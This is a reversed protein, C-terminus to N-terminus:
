AAAMAGRTSWLGTLLAAWSRVHWPRSRVARWLYRLARRDGRDLLCKGIFYLGPGDGARSSRPMELHPRIRRAEELVPAEDLGLARRRTAEVILEATRIQAPRARGTVSTTTFRWVYLVEPVLALSGVETLRLWLDIDQAYYFDSRYGGCRFYDARRFMASGHGGLGRMTGMDGTRLAATATSADAPPTWTALEEDEPGAFRTWCGVLAVDPRSRLLDRQRALRGPLSVDDADQRAILDGRAEGCARILARTLGQNPQTLVKVRADDRAYRELTALSGDTSGDDLAILELDVGAQGLVSEVSSALYRVGNFVCLVVSVEPSRDVPEGEPSPM